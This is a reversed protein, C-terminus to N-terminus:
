RTIVRGRVAFRANDDLPRGGCAVSTSRGCQYRTSGNVLTVSVASVRRNDFGVRIQGDGNRNLRVRTVQRKGDVLYLPM